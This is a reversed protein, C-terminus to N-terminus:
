KGAAKQVAASLDGISFPKVLVGNAGDKLLQDYIEDQTNASVILVRVAADVKRIAKLVTFGDDEGMSLDLTIVDPKKAERLQLTQALNEAEGVVEYGTMQLFDSIMARTVASDDVILVKLGM